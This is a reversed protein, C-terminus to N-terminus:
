QVTPCRFDQLSRSTFPNMSARMEFRASHDGDRLTLVTRDPGAPAFQGRGFLRFLAWAGSDQLGAAAGPPSWNLKAPAASPPPWVIQAPRPPGAGDQVTASGADLSATGGAPDVGVPTLDFRIKPTAGGGAFFLDRIAQATQFQQLDAPAFPATVGEVPQLKWVKGSTDVYPKLQTNFFADIVGGAGFLRGFEDLTVEKDSGPTFPYKGGVVQSCLAGVGGGAKFAATIQEKVGGGRLARGSAAISALWRALPQPQRLAETQLAVAPDASGPDTTAGAKNASAAMKALQQQLDGLPKLVQDIAGPRMLDRLPKYHDDIAQGPSAVADAPAGPRGFLAALRDRESPTATSAASPPASTTTQQVVSALLGRMPSNERSAVIYLDQAAQTLSRLPAIDLDALMADWAQIYDAVYLKIVDQEAATIAATDSQLDTKTGLVWSEAAVAKLAPGLAPLLVDRLGAPSFFGPIGETLPRGSVRVFVTVGAAGLADSPRWPPLRAAAASPKIRSYIRQAVSVRNFTAQAAAVVQGDLDIKPLPSQLLADLHRELDNRIEPTFSQEWDLTLWQRVLDRDLPGASGLMLYVRTAEYEFDADSLNGRIQAELRWLLRPLLAYQLGHRYVTDAAASLKAKQSLGLSTLFDDETTGANFPMARARNLLPLLSPLDADRVPDLPLTSAEQEYGALAAQVHDIEAAASRQQWWLAAGGALAILLCVVFGVSRLVMARRRTGASASGLMAERFIVDRLLGNLFFTRGEEPRLRRAQGGEVGFARALAGTLRDIPTGEQTASTLYIGRLLPPREREHPAFAEGLFEAVPAGVTAFQAPFASVLARREANPESQLRALMRQELVGVWRKAEATFAAVADQVAGKKYPLTIGWVQERAERDLDGFFETFGALLDSKTLLAYVPLRVGLKTELETIRRRIARAHLLRDAAVSDGVVDALAIAVIIGNLPQKPRTRKLLDLFAEWGARDVAADSDHTTYRGATDIMVAKDTFWWECLRTGGVGALAGRGMQDALPFELGANLLATTKGAGPPGIIVYWPQEYLAGRKGRAKRLTTMAAGLKEQLAAAEADEPKGGAVGAALSRDRSLRRLDLALNGIAWAAAMFAIIGIRPLPEELQPQLPGVFWVVLCLLQVGIFSLFWRLINM